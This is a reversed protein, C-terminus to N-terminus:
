VRRARRARPSTRSLSSRPEGEPGARGVGRPPFEEAPAVSGACRARRLDLESRLAVMDDDGVDDMSVLKTFRM